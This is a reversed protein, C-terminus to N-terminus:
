QHPDHKKIKVEQPIAKVAKYLMIFGMALGFALGLLTLLPDSEFHEDSKVGLWTFFGVSVAFEIGVGSFRMLGQVLEPRPM